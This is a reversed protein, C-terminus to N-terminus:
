RPRQISLILANALIKFSFSIAGPKSPRMSRRRLSQVMTSLIPEFIESKKLPIPSDNLPLLRLPNKVAKPVSKTALFAYLNHNSSQPGIILRQFLKILSPKRLVRSEIILVGSFIILKKSAILLERQFKLLLMLYSLMLFSAVASKIKAVANSTIEKISVSLSTPENAAMSLRSNVNIAIILWNSPILLAWLRLFPIAADLVMPAIPVMKTLIDIETRIRALAMFFNDPRLTSSRILLKTATTASKATTASTALAIFLSPFAIVLTPPWIINIDVATRIKTEAQLFSASRLQFSNALPTVPTTENVAVNTAAALIRPLSFFPIELNAPLISTIDPATKIKAVAQLFSASRLQLPSRLPTPPITTKVAVNTAAAM